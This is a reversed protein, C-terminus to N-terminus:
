HLIMGGESASSEDDEQFMDFIVVLTNDKMQRGRPRLMIVIVTAAAAAANYCRLTPWLSSSLLPLVITSFWVFALSPPVMAVLITSSQQPHLNKLTAVFAMELPFPLVSSLRWSLAAVSMKESPM